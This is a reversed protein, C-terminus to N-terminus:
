SSEKVSEVHLLGSKTKYGEVTVEHGLDASKVAAQNSIKSVAKTQSDVFVYKAGMKICKDACAKHDATAGKAGCKSDSIWGTYTTAKAMQKGSARTPAALSLTALLMAFLGFLSVARKM